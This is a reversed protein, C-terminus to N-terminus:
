GDAPAVTSHGDMATAGNSELVYTDSMSKLYGKWWGKWGDTRVRTSDKYVAYKIADVEYEAEFNPDEATVDSEVESEDDPSQYRAPELRVRRLESGSSLDM